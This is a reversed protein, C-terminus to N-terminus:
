SALQDAPWLCFNVRSVKFQDGLKPAYIDLYLCDEHGTFRHTMPSLQACHQKNRMDEGSPRREGQSDIDGAEVELRSKPASFLHNSEPTSNSDCLEPDLWIPRPRTWRREGIPPSAYPIGRFVIAKGEPRGTYPGCETQITLARTFSNSTRSTGARNSGNEKDENRLKEQDYSSDMLSESEESMMAAESERMQRMSSSAFQYSTSHRPAPLLDSPADNNQKRLNSGGDLELHHNFNLTREQLHGRLLDRQLHNHFSLTYLIMLTLVLVLSFLAALFAPARLLSVLLSAKNRQNRNLLASLTQVVRSRKHKKSLNDNYDKNYGYSHRYFELNHNNNQEGYNHAFRIPHHHHSFYSSRHSSRLENNNNNNNQNHEEENFKDYRRRQSSMTTTTETTTTATATTARTTNTNNPINSVNTDDQAPIVNRKALFESFHDIMRRGGLQVGAQLRRASERIQNSTTSAFKRRIRKQSYNLKIRSQQQQTQQNSLHFRVQPQRSINENWQNASEHEQQEGDAAAVLVLRDSAISPAVFHM